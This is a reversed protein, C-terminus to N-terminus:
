KVTRRARPLCIFALSTQKPCIKARLRDDIIKNLSSTGFWVHLDLFFHSVPILYSYFALLLLDQLTDSPWVEAQGGDLEAQEEM